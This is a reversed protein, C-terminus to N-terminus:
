EKGGQEIRHALAALVRSTAEHREQARVEHKDLLEALAALNPMSELRNITKQAIELQGRTATLVDDLRRVHDKEDALTLRLEQAAASAAEYAVKYRVGYLIGVLTALVGVSALVAAGLTVTDTFHVSALLSTIVATVM